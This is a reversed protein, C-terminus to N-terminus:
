KKELFGAVGLLVATLLLFHISPKLAYVFYSVAWAVVMLISVTYFITKMTFEHNM